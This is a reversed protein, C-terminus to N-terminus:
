WIGQAPKRAGMSRLGLIVGTGIVLGVLALAGREAGIIYLTLFTWVEEPLQFLVLNGIISSLTHEAQSSIWIIYGLAVGLVFRKESRLMRVAKENIKPVFLLIGPLLYRWPQLLSKWDVPFGNTAIFLAWWVLAALILYAGVIYRRGTTILGSAIPAMVMVLITIPGLWATHPAIMVGIGSGIAVAIAGAWPGLLIGILGTISLSLPFSVGAGLVVSFPILQLVATVAAMLAVYSIPAGFIGQQRTTTAETM